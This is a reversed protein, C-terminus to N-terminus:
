KFDQIYRFKAAVLLRYYTGGFETQDILENFYDVGRTFRTAMM